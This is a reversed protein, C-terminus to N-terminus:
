LIIGLRLASAIAHQRSVCGLKAQASSLMKCIFSESLCLIRGIEWSTKGDASWRLCEIERQSLLPRGAMDLPNVVDTPILITSVVAHAYVTFLQVAALLATRELTPSSAAESHALVVLVHGAGPLRVAAAVGSAFGHDAMFQWRSRLADDAYTSPEFWIPVTTELCHDLVPDFATEPHALWTEAFQGGASSLARFGTARGSRAAWRGWGCAVIFHAFGLHLALSTCLSYLDAPTVANSVKRLLEDFTSEGCSDNCSWIHMLLKKRGNEPRL